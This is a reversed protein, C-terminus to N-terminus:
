FTKISRPTAQGEYCGKPLQRAPTFTLNDSNADKAGMYVHLHLAIHTQITKSAADVAQLKTQGNESFCKCSEM